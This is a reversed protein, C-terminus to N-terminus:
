HLTPKPGRDEGIDIFAGDGDVHIGLKRALSHNARELDQIIELGNVSHQRLEKIIRDYADRREQEFRETLWCGLNFGAVVGWMLYVPRSLVEYLLMDALAGAVFFGAMFLRLRQPTVHSWARDWLKFTM